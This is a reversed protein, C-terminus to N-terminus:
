KIQCHAKLAALDDNTLVNSVGENLRYMIAEVDEVHDLGLAHGLEHALLRRLKEKTSFEYINIEEGDQDSKYEGQTFEEGREEGITDLERANINLTAALKNIVVVLSNIDDALTNTENELEQIARQERKLAEGEKKLEEYIDSPAGGQKNWYSVEQNYKNQRDRFDEIRSQYEAKKGSYTKQMSEYKAKLADYSARTNSVALEINHLKSTVAQRYDYILNVKLSDIVPDAKYVFLEEGIPEEWIMEAESVAELFDEQSIGFQTDFSGLSYVVPRQCPFYRDYLRLWEGAFTIYFVYGFLCIGALVLITKVIKQSM